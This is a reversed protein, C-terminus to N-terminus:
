RRWEAPDALVTDVHALLGLVPGDPVGRLRAVLNPREPTRGHLHVEFGAARFLVALEEQLAREDGPPNVTRHRILQQLLGVARDQLDPMHGSTLAAPRPARRRRVHPAARAAM